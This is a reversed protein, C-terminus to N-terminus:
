TTLIIQQSIKNILKRMEEEEASKFKTPKLLDAIDHFHHVVTSHHLAKGKKHFFKGIEKCTIITVKRIFYVAVKKANLVRRDSYKKHMEELTVGTASTVCGTIRIMKEEDSCDDLCALVAKLTVEGSLGPRTLYSM